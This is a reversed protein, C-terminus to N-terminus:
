HLFLKEWCGNSLALHITERAVEVNPTKVITIGLDKLYM